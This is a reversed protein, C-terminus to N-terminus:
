SFITLRGLRYEQSGDTLDILVDNQVFEWGSRTKKLLRDVPRGGAIAKLTAANVYRKIGYPLPVDRRSLDISAVPFRQQPQLPPVRTVRRSGLNVRAPLIPARELRPVLVSLAQAPLTHAFRTFDIVDGGRRTPRLAQDLRSAAFRPSRVARKLDTDSSNLHELAQRQSHFM